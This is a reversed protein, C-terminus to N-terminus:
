GAMLVPHTAFNRSAGRGKTAAFVM